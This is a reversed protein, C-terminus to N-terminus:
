SDRDDESTEDDPSEVAPPPPDDLLKQIRLARDVTDLEIAPSENADKHMDIYYSITVASILSTM